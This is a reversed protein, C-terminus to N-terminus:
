SSTFHIYGPHSDSNSHPAVDAISCSTIPTSTMSAASTLFDLNSFLVGISVYFLFVIVLPGPKPNFKVSFTASGIVFSRYLLMYRTASYVCVIKANLRPITKFISECPKSAGM